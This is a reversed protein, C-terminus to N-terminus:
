KPKLSPDGIGGIGLLLWHSVNGCTVRFFHSVFARGDLV